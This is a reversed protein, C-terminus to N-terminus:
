GGLIGLHNWTSAEILLLSIAFELDKMQNPSNWSLMAANYAEDKNIDGSKVQVKKKFFIKVQLKCLSVLFLNQWWKPYKAQRGRVELNDSQELKSWTELYM